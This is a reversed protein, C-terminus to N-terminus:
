RLYYDGRRNVYIVNQWITGMLYIELTTRSDGFTLRFYPAFSRNIWWYDEERLTPNRIQGYIIYDGSLEGDRPIKRIGNDDECM